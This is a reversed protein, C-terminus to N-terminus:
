PPKPNTYIEVSSGRFVARKNMFKGTSGTRISSRSSSSATARGGVLRGFVPGATASASTPWGILSTGCWPTGENFIVKGRGQFKQKLGMRDILMIGEINMNRKAWTEFDRTRFSVPATVLLNLSNSKAEIPTGCSAHGNASKGYLPLLDKVTLDREPATGEWRLNHSPSFRQGSIFILLFQTPNNFTDTWSTFFVNFWVHSLIQFVCQILCTVFKSFCM